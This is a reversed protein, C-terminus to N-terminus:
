QGLNNPAMYEIEDVDDTEETSEQVQTEPLVISGDSIDWHNGQNVPTEFSKSASRPARIHKRTSSPRLTAEPTGTNPEFM